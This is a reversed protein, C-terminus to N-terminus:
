GRQGVQDSGSHPHMQVGAHTMGPYPLACGQLIEFSDDGQFVEPRGCFLSFCIMFLSVHYTLDFCSVHRLIFTIEFSHLRL